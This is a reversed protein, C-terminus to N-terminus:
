AVERTIEILAARLADTEAPMGASIRLCDRLEPDAPRHVWIGRDRLARWVCDATALEVRALLFNALSPFPQVLSLKRLMRYLRSREDRVRRTSVLISPRDDLTALAAAVGSATPGSPLFAAIQEVIKPPGALYALPFAALGAWTEFTQVVLLNGFERILPTLTRACYGMHREDVLAVECGRLLRVADSIGVAAGTPDSPSGVIAATAAPLSALLETELALAFSPSRSLAISEVNLRAALDRPWVDGPRFLAIPGRRARWLMYAALLDDARSALLVWRDPVGLTAAIRQRLRETMADVPEGLAGGSLADLAALGPGYPNGVGDLRIPRQRAAPAALASTQKRENM